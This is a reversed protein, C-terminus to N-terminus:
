LVELMRLGADAPAASVNKTRQEYKDARGDQTANCQTACQLSRESTRFLPKRLWRSSRLVALAWAHALLSWSQLLVRRMGRGLPDPSRCLSGELPGSQSCVRCWVLEQAGNDSFVSANGKGVLRPVQM